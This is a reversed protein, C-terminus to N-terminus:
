FGFRPAPVPQRVPKPRAAAQHHRRRRKRKKEAKDADNSASLWFFFVLMLWVFRRLAAENFQATIPEM